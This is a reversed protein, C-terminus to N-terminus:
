RRGCRPPCDPTELGLAMLSTNVATTDLKQGHGPPEAIPEEGARARAMVDGLAITSAPPPTATEIRAPSGAERRLRRPHPPRPLAPRGRPAAPAEGRACRDTRAPPATALSRGRRGGHEPGTRDRLATRSPRGAGRGDRPSRHALSSRRSRSSAPRSGRASSIELASWCSSVLSARAFSAASSCSVESGESLRLRVSSDSWACIAEASRMSATTFSACSRRRRSSARRSSAAARATSSETSALSSPISPREDSTSSTTVSM